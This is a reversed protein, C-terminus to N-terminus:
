WKFLNNIDWSNCIIDNLSEIGGFKVFWDYLVVNCIVVLNMCGIILVYVVEDCWKLVDKSVLGDELGFVYFVNEFYKFEFLLMVGEVFEIM